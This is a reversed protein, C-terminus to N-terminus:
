AFTECGRRAVRSVNQGAGSVSWSSFGRRESVM